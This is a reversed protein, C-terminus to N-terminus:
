KLIQSEFDRFFKGSLVFGATCTCEEAFSDWLGNHCATDESDEWVWTDIILKIFIKLFYRLNQSLFVQIQFGEQSTVMITMILVTM